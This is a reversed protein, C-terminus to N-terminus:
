NNKTLYNLIEKESVLGKYKYYVITTYFLIMFFHMENIHFPRQQYCIFLLLSGLLVEKKRRLVLCLAFLPLYTVVYGVLGDKALIEYPNDNLREVSTKELYQGGAGMYIHQKFVREANDSYDNRASQIEGNQFREITLSLFGGNDKVLSYVGFVLPIIVLLSLVLKKVGGRYFFFLVYLPLMVFYAASFTFLLSVMLLVEIKRNNYIIKNIVLAFIGWSAFAGPEDFFGAIRVFNGILTNTSTIGYFYIFRGKIAFIEIPDLIGVFILVFAIAGLIGQLCIIANYLFGFKFLSKSRILLLLVIGTMLLFFLRPLYSKDDHYFTFLVWTISEVIILFVVIKPLFVRNKTTMLLVVALSAFILDMIIEEPLGIIDPIIYPYVLLLMMVVFIAYKNLAYKVLKM